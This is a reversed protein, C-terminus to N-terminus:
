GGRGYIGRTSNKRETACFVLAFRGANRNSPRKANPKTSTTIIHSATENRNRTSDRSTIPSSLSLHFRNYSRGGAVLAWSSTSAASSGAGRHRGTAARWFVVLSQRQLSSDHTGLHAPDIVRFRLLFYPAYPILIRCPAVFASLLVLLIGFRGFSSGLFVEQPAPVFFDLFPLAVDCQCAGTAFM